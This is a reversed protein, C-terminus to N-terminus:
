WDPELLSSNRPGRETCTAQSCRLATADDVAPPPCAVMRRYFSSLRQRPYNCSVQDGAIAKLAKVSNTPRCSPCGAQLFVSHHRAPTTIQRSRYASKSSAWSVGSGSVTEQKLLIWISKVKRTSAWGPLGPCLATLRTHTHTHTPRRSVLQRPRRATRRGSITSAPSPMDDRRRRGPHYWRSLIAHRKFRNIFVKIRWFVPLLSVCLCIYVVNDCSLMIKLLLGSVGPPMLNLCLFLRCCVTM